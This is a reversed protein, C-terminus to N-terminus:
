ITVSYDTHTSYVEGDKVVLILTFVPKFNQTNACYICICHYVFLLCYMLHYQLNVDKSFKIYPRGHAILNNSLTIM